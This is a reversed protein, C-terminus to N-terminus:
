EVEQEPIPPMDNPDVEYFKTGDWRGNVHAAGTEETEVFVVGPGCFEEAAEFSDAVIKNRVFGDKVIVFVNSM